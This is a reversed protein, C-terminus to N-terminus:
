SGKFSFLAEAASLRNKKRDIAEKVRSIETELLNVREALEEVSYPDLDEKALGALAGAGRNANRLSLPLDDENM